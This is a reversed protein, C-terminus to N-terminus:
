ISVIVRPRTQEFGNTQGLGLAHNKQAPCSHVFRLFLSIDTTIRRTRKQKSLQRRMLPSKVATEACIVDLGLERANKFVYTPICACELLITTVFLPVALVVMVAMVDLQGSNWNADPVVGAVRSGFFDVDNEIIKAGSAALANLQVYVRVWCTPLGSATGIVPVPSADLAATLTEGVDNLKGL